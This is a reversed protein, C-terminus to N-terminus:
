EIQVNLYSLLFPSEARKAKGSEACVYFNDSTRLFIEYYFAWDAVINTDEIPNFGLKYLTFFNESSIGYIEEYNKYYWM